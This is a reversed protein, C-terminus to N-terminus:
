HLAAYALAAAIAALAIWTLRALGGARTPPAAAPSPPEPAPSVDFSAQDENLAMGAMGTMVSPRAVAGEHEALLRAAARRSGSGLTRMAARIEREALDPSIDLIPAIQAPSMHAFVFRLCARQQETLRALRDADM